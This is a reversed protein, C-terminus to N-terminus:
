ELMQRCFCLFILFISDYYGTKFNLNLSPVELLGTELMLAISDIVSGFCQTVQIRGWM